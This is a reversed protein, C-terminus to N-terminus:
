LWQMEWLVFVFIILSDISSLTLFSLPKSAEFVMLLVALVRKNADCLVM